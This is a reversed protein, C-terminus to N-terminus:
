GGFANDINPARVSGQGGIVSSGPPFFYETNFQQASRAKARFSKAANPDVITQIQDLVEREFALRVYWLSGGPTYRRFLDVTERGIDTDEGTIVEQVNGVMYKLIFDDFFGLGPGGVTEGLGGGFRNQDAFLFDGFIGIGGGQAMAAGWFKLDTMDRPDKGKSADKMQLAMAGLITNGIFLSAAYTLATRPRGQTAEAVIRGVQTVLITVPFAKFQMGFRALEGPITGPKTTALALSRGFIDTSPVAFETQSTIAEMYRDAVKQGASVEIEEARLIKVGKATTHIEANQILAWEAKGIGYGEVMLQTKPPIEKFPKGHWQEAAQNMFEMGFSHRQMETAWGLGSARITFDAMRAASEVHMEELEFRGVANGIDVANEFVLGAKNAEARFDKSGILRGFQQLFGASRMGIFSSALRQTNFDTVSSIVASGLHASSLFNRVASAGRAAKSSHPVNSAGTFMDMMDGAMRTKINASLPADADESLAAFRKAADTLHAFTNTPNPGLEEMLAVDMAMRDLHGMMVRFTDQGSGFENSYAMWDDATKFKFFRPDARRNAMSAGYKSSAARRSYGDTRIAQYSDQLVVEFANPTFPLETRPDIMRELDLRPLISTRWVDYGAKRIRRSDHAQPLGWDDIKGTHGGAANRRMRAKESVESWVRAMSKAAKNGTSEGFVERTVDDLLKKQRRVGVLNGRFAVVAETMERRFSRRVAEFKGALTSGGVGRRNSILDMMYQAPDKNGLINTHESMRSVQDQTAAATLQMVRRKEFADFRAQRLVSRAAEAEAQSHGMNERFQPFVDDYERLIRAAREKDMEGADVARNICDKISM